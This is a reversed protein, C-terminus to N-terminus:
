LRAAKGRGADRWPWACGRWQWVSIIGRRPEQAGWSALLRGTASPRQGRRLVLVLRPQVGPADPGPNGLTGDAGDSFGPPSVWSPNLSSTPSGASGACTQSSAAGESMIRPFCPGPIGFPLHVPAPNCVHGTHHPLSERIRRKRGLISAPPCCGTPFIQRRRQARWNAGRPAAASKYNYIYVYIYIHNQM